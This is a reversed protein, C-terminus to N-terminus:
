IMLAKWGKRTGTGMNIDKKREWCRSGGANLAAQACCNTSIEWQLRPTFVCM